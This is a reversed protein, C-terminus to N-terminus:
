GISITLYASFTGIPLYPILLEAVQYTERLTNLLRGLLAAALSPGSLVLFRLEHRGKM